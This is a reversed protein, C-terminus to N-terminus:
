PADQARGEGRRPATARRLLAGVEIVTFLRDRHRGVGSLCDAHAGGVGAPCPEVSGPELRVVSAIADVLLGCPGDGEDVVVLRGPAEPGKGRPLGLAGRPDLVPVVDGRVTVVGVVGGPARPVEAVPPCRAVERVREIPVAYEEGGLFFTLYEELVRPGAPREGALPPEPAPGFPEEDERYFFADLPDLHARPAAPGAHPLAFPPPAAGAGDAAPPGPEIAAAPGSGPRWLAFRQDEARPLEAIRAAIWADALADARPGPPPAGGPAAGGGAATALDAEPPLDM